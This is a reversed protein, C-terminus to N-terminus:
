ITVVQYTWSSKWYIENEFVSDDPTTLLRGLWRRMLTGPDDNIMWPPGNHRSSLRSGRWKVASFDSGASFSPATFRQCIFKLSSLPIPSSPGSRAENPDVASSQYMLRPSSSRPANRKSEEDFFNAAIQSQKTRKRPPIASVIGVFKIQFNKDGGSFMKHTYYRTELTHNSHCNWWTLNSRLSITSNNIVSYIASFLLTYRNVKLICRHISNIILKDRNTLYFTSNRRLQSIERFLLMCLSM